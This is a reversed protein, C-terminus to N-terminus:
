GQHYFPLGKIRESLLYTLEAEEGWANQFRIIENLPIKEKIRLCLHNRCIIPRALIKCGKTGLFFCGNPDERKCPLKVGLLLNLLLISVEVHRELGTGCCTLGDEEPCSACIQSIGTSFLARNTQEIAQQYRNLDPFLAERLHDGHHRFLTRALDLRKLIIEEM